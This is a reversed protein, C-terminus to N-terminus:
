NILQFQSSKRGVGSLSTFHWEGKQGKVGECGPAGDLGLPGRDGRKGFAGPAGTLGSPGAFGQLGWSGTLGSLAPTSNHNDHCEKVFM